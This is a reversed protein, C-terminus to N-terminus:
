TSIIDTEPLTTKWGDNKMSSTTTNVKQRSVKFDMAPTVPMGDFSFDSPIWGAHECPKQKFDLM